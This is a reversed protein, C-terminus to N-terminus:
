PNAGERLSNVIGQDLGRRVDPSPLHGSGPGGDPGGAGGELGGPGGGPAGPAGNGPPPPPLELGPIKIPPNAAFHAEVKKRREGPSLNGLSDFFKRDAQIREEIVVREGAPLKELAAQIKTQFDQGPGRGELGPPAPPGTRDQKGFPWHLVLNALLLLPLILWYWRVHLRHVTM